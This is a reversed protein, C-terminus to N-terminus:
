IRRQGDGRLAHLYIATWDHMKKTDRGGRLPSFIWATGGLVLTFKNFWSELPFNMKQIKYFSGPASGIVMAASCARCFKMLGGLRWSSDNERLGGIM